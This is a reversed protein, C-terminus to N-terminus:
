LGLKRRMALREMGEDPLTEPEVKKPQAVPLQQGTEGQAGRPSEPNVVKFKAELGERIQKTASIVAEEFPKGSALLVRAKAEIAPELGLEILDKNEQKVKSIFTIREIYAPLDEPRVGVSAAHANQTESAQTQPEEQTAQYGTLRNELSANVTALETIKADKEAMRKKIEDLEKLVNSLDVNQAQQQAQGNVNPTATQNAQQEPVQGQEVQGGM